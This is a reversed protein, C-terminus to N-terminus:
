SGNSSFSFSHVRTCLQNIFDWKFRVSIIFVFAIFSLSWTYRNFYFSWRIFVCVCIVRLILYMFKWPLLIRYLLNTFKVQIRVEALHSSLQRHFVDLIYCKYYPRSTLLYGAYAVWGWKCPNTHTKRKLWCHLTQIEELEILM